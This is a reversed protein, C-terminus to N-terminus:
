QIMKKTNNDVLPSAVIGQRLEELVATTVNGKLGLKSDEYKEILTQLPRIIPSNCNFVSEKDLFNCKSHNAEVLTKAPLGVRAVWKRRDAVNSTANVMLLLNETLPEHNLVVFYHPEQSPFSEEIFYFVSGPKLISKIAIDSPIKM